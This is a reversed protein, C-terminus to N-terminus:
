EAALSEPGALAEEALAEAIAAVLETTREFGPGPGDLGADLYLTRCLELQVAHVDREPRGHRALVYGGPYPANRAVRLGRDGCVEAARALFAPAASAGDRDGLVIDPPLGGAPAALPPMSHCDLLVATGFRRRASALADAVADHYRRHVGAIRRALDAAAIPRRYINGHGSLRRPVLGLGGRVKATSELAVAAPRPHVMEPDIEREARNLDIWARATTAVIATAGDRTLPRILGDVHRDELAELQRRALRSQALLEPPYRRGAHPVSLVVPSAPVAPGLRIVSDEPSGRHVM